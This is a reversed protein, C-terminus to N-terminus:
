GGLTRVWGGEFSGHGSDGDRALGNKTFFLFHINKIDGRKVYIRSEVLTGDEVLYDVM